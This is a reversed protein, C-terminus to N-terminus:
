AVAARGDALFLVADPLRDRPLGVVLVDTVEGEPKVAHAEPRSVLQGIRAIVPRLPQVGFDGHLPKRTRHHANVGVAMQLLHLIDDVVGVRDIHHGAVLFLGVLHQVECGGQAVEL